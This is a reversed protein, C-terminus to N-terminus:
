AAPASSGDGAAANPDVNGQGWQATGSDISDMTQGTGGDVDPM